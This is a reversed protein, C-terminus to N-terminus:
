NKETYPKSEDILFHAEQKINEDRLKISRIYNRLM